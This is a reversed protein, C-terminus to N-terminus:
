PFRRHLVMTILATRETKNSKARTSFGAELLAECMSKAVDATKFLAALALATEGNRDKLDNL